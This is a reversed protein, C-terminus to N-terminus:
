EACALACSWSIARSFKPLNFTAGGRDQSLLTADGFNARVGLLVMNETIKNGNLSSSSSWGAAENRFGAYEVYLSWPSTGLRHEYSIGWNLIDYGGSIGPSLEHNLHTWGVEATVKDNPTFFYRGQMRAFWGDDPSMRYAGVEPGSIRGIYGAQPYLTLNGLYGQGEVGILGHTSAGNFALGNAGVVAGFVGLAYAQPARWTWHGGVTGAVRGGLDIGDFAFGTSGEAGADLQISTVPSLWINVRGDGGYIHPTDNVDFNGKLASHSGGGYISVHGSIPPIATADPAKLPLDGGSAGSWGASALVVGTLLSWGMRNM